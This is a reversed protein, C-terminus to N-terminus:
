DALRFRTKCTATAFFAMTVLKRGLRDAVFGFAALGLLGGLNFTMAGYTAVPISIPRAGSYTLPKREQEKSQM